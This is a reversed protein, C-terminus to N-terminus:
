RKELHSLFEQFNSTVRLGDLWEDDLLEDVPPLTKAAYAKEIFHMSRDYQGLISNLCALHYFSQQNGLKAALTLKHDADLYLAEIEQRDQLHHALSILTVGFDLVLQDNEEDHKSALRFHHIARYFHDVDSILEGLHSHALALQHHIEPFDPDVMLVHSLLEIAKLYYGEEEYFDGLIDLAIAYHFLWEPHLYVANKQVSLAREFQAVAIELLRQEDKMEGLRSLAYAQDFIYFTSAHLDLAKSFFRSAKEFADIDEEAEGVAVYAQAIAHWLRHSTRDISLGYQFKEIAQYFYDIDSFYRAFSNLCM